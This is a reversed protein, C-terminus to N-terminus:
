PRPYTRRVDRGTRVDTIQKARGADRRRAMTRVRDLQVAQEARHTTADRQQRECIWSALGAIVYRHEDFRCDLEDNDTDLVPATTTYWLEYTGSGPDPRLELEDGDGAQGSGVLRYVVEERAGSGMEMELLPAPEVMYRESGEVRDLRRISQFNEPLAYSTTGSTTNLTTRALTRDPDVVFVEHHIESVLDNLEDVLHEDEINPDFEAEAKRRARDLIQRRTIVYAM